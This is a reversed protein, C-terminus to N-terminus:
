IYSNIVDSLIEYNSSIILLQLEIKGFSAVINSIELLGM